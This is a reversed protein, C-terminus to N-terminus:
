VFVDFYFPPNFKACLLFQDCYITAIVLSTCVSQLSLLVYIDYSMLSLFAEMSGHSCVYECMAAPLLIWNMVPYHLM